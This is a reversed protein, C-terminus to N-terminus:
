QGERRQEAILDRLIASITEGTAEARRFLWEHDSATLRVTFKVTPEGERLPKRGRTEIKAM